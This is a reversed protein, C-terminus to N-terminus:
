TGGPEGGRRESVELGDAEGSTEAREPVLSPAEDGFALALLLNIQYRPILLIRNPRRELVTYYAYGTVLLDGVRLVALPDGNLRDRFTLLIDPRELGYEVLPRDPKIARDALMRATIEFQETIQTADPSDPGDGGHDHTHGDVDHAHDHGHDHAHSVQFWRGDPNREFDVHRSNWAVTVSGIDPEGFAFVPFRGEPLDDLGEPGHDHSDQQEPPPRDTQVLAVVAVLLLVWVLFTRRSFTSRKM